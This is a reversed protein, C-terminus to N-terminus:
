ILAPWTSIALAYIREGYRCVCWAGLCVKVSLVVVPSRYVDTNCVM